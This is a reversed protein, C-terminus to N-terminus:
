VQLQAPQEEPFIEEISVPRGDYLDADPDDDSLLFFETTGERGGGSAIRKM